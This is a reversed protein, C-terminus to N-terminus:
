GGNEAPAPLLRQAGPGRGYHGVRGEGLDVIALVAALRGAFEDINDVSSLRGAVDDDERLPVVLEEDETADDNRDEAALLAMPALGGRDDVLLRAFPGALEPVPVKAGRGSVLVVRTGARLDLGTGDAAGEPADFDIFGSDRLTAFITPTADGDVPAATTSTTTTELPATTTSTVSPDDVETAGASQRLLAALRTLAIDRLRDPAISEAADLAGRLDRVEDDDDLAFRETLWITGRQDAGATGLLSVLGAFGDGDVDRTAVLLVPVDTLAGALLRQSGQEALQDASEHLLRNESSLADNKTEVDNIRTELNRQQDELRNVIARDIVASGMIVGIALALFVAILSVIHYRFNIM